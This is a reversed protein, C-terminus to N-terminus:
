NLLFYCNNKNDLKNYKTKSIKKKKNNIFMLPHKFCTNLSIVIPIKLNLQMSISLYNLNKTMILINIILYNM